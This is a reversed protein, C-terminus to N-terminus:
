VECHIGPHEGIRRLETARQLVYAQAAVGHCGLPPEIVSVYVGAGAAASGALSGCGRAYRIHGGSWKVTCYEMLGQIALPSGTSVARAM